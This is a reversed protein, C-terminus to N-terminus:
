SFIDELESGFSVLNLLCNSQNSFVHGAHICKHKLIPLPKPPASVGQKAPWCESQLLMFPYRHPLHYGTRCTAGDVSTPSSLASVVPRLM